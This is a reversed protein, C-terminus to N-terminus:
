RPAAPPAISAELSRRLEEPSIPAPRDYGIGLERYWPSLDEGAALSFYYLAEHISPGRDRGKLAHSIELFRAMFGFGHKAELREIMGMLKGECSGFVSRDKEALTIDLIGGDREVNEFGSRWSRREEAAEELYGLAAAARMGVMSAWGESLIGPLPGEWSHTLEHAIVSLNAAMPGGCQVGIESGGSWGGGGSALVNVVLRGAPPPGGNARAVFDAVRPLAELLAKAHLAVPNSYRVLLPGLELEREAPIGLVPPGEGGPPNRPSLCKFLAVTTAANPVRLDADRQRCFDWYALDDAFCLVKGKEWDRRMAVAIGDQDCIVKDAPGTAEVRCRISETRLVSDAGFSERLWPEPRLPLRCPNSRLTFGFESAVKAIPRGPAGVILLRGGDRVYSKLLQVETEPFDFANAGEEIMVIDYDGLKGKAGLSADSLVVEFGAPRLMRQGLDDHAFLWEHSRDILIRPRDHAGGAGSQAGPPPVKGLGARVSASIFEVVPRPDRPSTPFHGEGEKVIVTIKGGLEKYRKETVRTNSDFTPDLSGCVHLIPVGARALPVLDDLPQTRSMHSYLLPNEVYICSVKDPNDIAWVYAEGAAGGAGEMVPKRAFGYHLLHEYVADWHTPIPGDSNFPVPGTVIHFGRALLAQDVTADRGVPDARFVWPKGPAASKPEIVSIPGEVGALDFVYRDYCEIFLPGRCAIFANEKAFRRFSSATGYYSTRTFRAGAFPPAQHGIAQVSQSFFDAIPGPDVLSHPHHGFGDKIMMSVRGGFQQYISEIALANRGLVPDISGCIQLLPIDNRALDGLRAFIEPNAGPNDAYICSIRDPHTTAWSYAYEGGRSMGIFAPKRSLGHRETLFAYWADWHKSPKLNFDATIYAIHFGRGLLEIEAQPQHDWYCGRWSWPNGPAPHEPAVVMCRRRGGAPTDVSAPEIALSQEDMLFDYRDFGHWDTKQGTFTTSAGTGEVNGDALKRVSVEKFWVVDGPFHNQLGIYGAAPRKPERKPDFWEQAKPLERDRPDFSTIRQGDLDVFIQEGALTIVMAKWEGPAKSSTASSAALSYIAGTRHLPDNQDMIQVEYGRHVAFWPGEEREASEKRAQMSEPSIGGDARRSIPVGPHDIQELIGDAIRVHVGSNSKADQSRFLVRIQCGGFREKQYVLLGLGKPDCETRLAGDDVVFGGWGVQRWGEAVKGDTVLPLPRWAPEDSVEGGRGSAGPWEIALGCVTLSLFTFKPSSHSLISRDAFSLM